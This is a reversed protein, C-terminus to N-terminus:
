GADDVVEEILRSTSRGPLYPLVAVRAGWERLAGAEPLEVGTYDGGKAFVDPRLERLAREPTDESFITVADVCALASLVAARDHQPVLPRGPGKLRRVSADSNMLVVLCDGLGRARELTHVHGAHLLDFCGGTAVVTGGRARVRAVVEPVSPREAGPSWAPGAVALERLAGGAGGAAVFASAVAVAQLVAEDPPAGDALASVVRSAFRDGAGCSDGEEAPDAPVALPPAGTRALVAGREGLTVCVNEARWRRALAQARRALEDPEDGGPVLRDVEALNPTAMVAGPTPAPGRPHPDWVLPVEPAARRLADRLAPEAAVGRGYDSVLVGDAWGIAARAAASPAEVRAGPGGRDLRVLSRGDSRIRIKEPTPGALGLDVLDVGARELGARLEGGARDRGLATVLRVERGDAALLAAALGAGGPRAERGLEDVVPAPADPCLREVTGHVDRDLLADGVVV